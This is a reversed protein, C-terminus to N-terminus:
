RNDEPGSCGIKSLCALASAPTPFLFPVSRRYDDYGLLVRPFVWLDEFLVLLLNLGTYAALSAPPLGAGLCLCLMAFFLWLVGPHRCLRYMGRRCVERKTGPAAYAQGASFCFFLSYILLATFAAALAWLLVRLPGPAAAAASVDLQFVCGATLLVAGAPFAVALYKRRFLADNLDAIFFLAFGLCGVLFM